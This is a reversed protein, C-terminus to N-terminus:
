APLIEVIRLTGPEVIVIQDGVMFYMYGRWAPHIEIIQPPLTVVHVRSPVVAGVNLSFDVHAVRPANSQKVVVDHIRTREESTLNINVNTTPRQGNTQATTGSEANAKPTDQASAAGERGRAGPKDDMKTATGGTQGASPAAKNTSQAARNPPTTTQEAGKMAPSPGPGKEGPPAIREAPATAAAPANGPSGAANSNIDPKNQALALSSGAVIAAVATGILLHRKM